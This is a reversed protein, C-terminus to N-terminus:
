PAAPHFVTKCNTEHPIPNRAASAASDLDQNARTPRHREHKTWYKLTPKPFDYVKSKDRIGVAIVRKRIQPVGFDASNLVTYKVSYGTEACMYEYLQKWDEGNNVTLLGPVNEFIFAKPQLENIIRIYEFVLKGRPDEFSSRRGLISFSQCPSGGSLLDFEGVGSLQKIEDGSIMSVDKSIAVDQPFNYSITKCHPEEIDSSFRPQFGALALGVDLGGGGSFLSALNYKYEIEEPRPLSNLESLYPNDPHSTKPHIALPLTMLAM